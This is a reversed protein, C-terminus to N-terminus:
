AMTAWGRFAPALVVFHVTSVATTNNSRSSVWLLAEHCDHLSPTWLSGDKFVLM